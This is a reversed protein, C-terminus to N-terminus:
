RRAQAANPSALTAPDITKAEASDAIVFEAFDLGPISIRRTVRLGVSLYFENFKGSWVGARELVARPITFSGNSPRETCAFLTAGDTVGDEGLKGFIEIHGESPDAVRWSITLGDAVPRGFENRNTWQIAAAPLSVGADFPGLGPGGAGNDLRYEGPEVVGDFPGNYYGNEDRAATFIGRPTRLNLAVGANSLSNVNPVAALGGGWSHACSGFPIVSTQQITSVAASWYSGSFSVEATRLNGAYLKQVELESLGHPDSCAGTGSAISVYVDEPTYGDESYRVWVPVNCGEIGPPVEFIVQDMGACCGSRGSYVIKAPQGGLLVQFGPIQLPGPIPGAAEDGPAFGLGSGWLTVLQGPRAPVVLSNSSVTGAADINQVARDICFSANSPSFGEGCWSGSYVAFGQARVPLRYPVSSKGNYTVVLIGDGLPTSAPLMARVWQTGAGLVYADLSVGAVTVRVSVGALATVLPFDAHTRPVQPGVPLNASFIVMNSGPAINVSGLHAENYVGYIGAPPDAAYIAPVAALWAIFITRRMM